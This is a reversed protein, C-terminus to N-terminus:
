YGNEALIEEVEEVESWDVEGDGSLSLDSDLEPTDEDDDSKFM